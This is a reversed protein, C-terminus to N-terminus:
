PFHFITVTVFKYMILKDKRDRIAKVKGKKGERGRKDKEREHERETEREGL